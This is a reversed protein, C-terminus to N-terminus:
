CLQYLAVDTDCLDHTWIWYLGSNKETGIKLVKKTTKMMASIAEMNMEKDANWVRPKWINVTPFTYRETM